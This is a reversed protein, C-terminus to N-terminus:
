WTTRATGFAEVHTATRLLVSRYRNLGLAVEDFAVLGMQSAHCRIAARGLAEHDPHADGPHHAYVVEPRLERVLRVLAAVLDYGAWALRGDPLGLFRVEAAGIADAAVEAERRRTAALDEPRADVGGADGDTACCIAVRDGADAHLALAGGCGIECDDPHAGIALVNM